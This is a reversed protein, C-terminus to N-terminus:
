ARTIRTPSSNMTCVNLTPESTSCVLSDPSTSLSSLWMSTNLRAPLDKQLVVDEGVVVVAVREGPGESGQGDRGGVESGSEHLLEAARRTEVRGDV